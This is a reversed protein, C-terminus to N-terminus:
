LASPTVPGLSRDRRCGGSGARQGALPQVEPPVERAHDEDRDRDRDPLEDLQARGRKREGALPDLEFRADQGLGVVLDLEVADLVRNQGSGQELPHQAQARDLHDGAVRALRFQDKGADGVRLVDALHDALVHFAHTPQPANTLEIDGVLHQRVTVPSGLSGILPVPRRGTTGAVDFLLLQPLAKRCRREVRDLTFWGGAMSMMSNWVLGTAAFSLDVTKFRQWWNLNSLRAVAHLQPPTAKLSNYFSFTMNWAQGTFIMLVSALELGLNRQPFVHVLALVFGPLFGLVPISQLIDLVPLLFREAGAIRAMIYGYVLTFLFSVGYACLGRALSYLAYLPLYRPESHIEATAIMPGTWEHAVTAVLYIFSVLLGAM